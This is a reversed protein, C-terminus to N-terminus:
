NLFFFNSKNIDENNLSVWFEPPCDDEEWNEQVLNQVHEELINVIDLGFVTQNYKKHEM